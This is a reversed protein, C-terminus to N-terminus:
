YNGLNHYPYKNSELLQHLRLYYRPAFSRLDLYTLTSSKGDLQEYLVLPITKLTDKYILKFKSFKGNYTQYDAIASPVNISPKLLSDDKIHIPFLIKKCRSIQQFLVTDANSPYEFFLDCLVYSHQNNNDALIKFFDRLMNRDTIAINGWDYPDKILSIDKSTNVFVFDYPSKFKNPLILDEVIFIKKLLGEDM